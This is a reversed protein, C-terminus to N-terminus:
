FATLGGGVKGSRDDERTKYGGGLLSKKHIMQMQHTFTEDVNLGELMSIEGMTMSPDDNKIYREKGYLNRVIYDDVETGRM